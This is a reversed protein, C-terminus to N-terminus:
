SPVQWSHERGRNGEPGIPLRQLQWQKQDTQRPFTGRDVQTEKGCCVKELIYMWTCQITVSSVNGSSYTERLECHGRTTSDKQRSNQPSPTPISTGYIRAKHKVAMNLVWHAPHQPKAKATSHKGLMCTVAFWLHIKRQVVLECFLLLLFLVFFLVHLSILTQGTAYAQGM